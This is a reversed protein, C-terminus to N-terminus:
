LVANRAARRLLNAADGKSAECILEQPHFGASVLGARQATRFAQWSDQFKPYQDALNVYIPQRGEVPHLQMPKKPPSNEEPLILSTWQRQQFAPTLAAWPQLADATCWPDSLVHLRSGSEPRHKLSQFVDSGSPQALNQLFPLVAARRSWGSFRAPQTADSFILVRTGQELALWTLALTLRRQAIDRDESAPAMSASRDMVLCLQGGRERELGRVMPHGTRATARWDVNRKSDGLQWRRREFGPVQDGRHADPREGMMGMKRRAGQRALEDFFESPFLESTM